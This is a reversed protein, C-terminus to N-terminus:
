VTFAGTLVIYITELARGEHILVAGPAVRERRGTAILWDVDSDNLVGFFLLAKRMM